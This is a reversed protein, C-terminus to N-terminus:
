LKDQLPALKIAPPNYKSVSSKFFFYAFFNSKKKHHNLPFEQHFIEFSDTIQEFFFANFDAV